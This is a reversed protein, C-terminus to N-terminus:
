LDTLSGDTYIKTSDKYDECNLELSLQQLLTPDQAKTTDSSLSSNIKPCAWDWPPSDNVIAQTTFRPDTKNPLKIGRNKLLLKSRQYFSLPASVRTLHGPSGTPMFHLKCRRSMVVSDIYLDLPPIDAEIELAPIPSTRLAGTMLRLATNQIAELKKIHTKSCSSWIEMSYSIKSQIYALYFTRLSTLDAGWHQSAITKMIHIRRSCVGALTDIHNTWSLKQDLILGLIKPNKNYRIKEGHLIQHKWKRTIVTYETKEKSVKLKWKSAWQDTAELCTNLKDIILPLNKNRMIITGDDAYLYSRHMTQPHDNTPQVNINFILPSIVVGQPTGANIRFNRRWSPSPHM